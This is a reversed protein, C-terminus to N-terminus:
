RVSPVHRGLWPLLQWDGRAWRHLRQAWALYHEPYDEIFVIDTVLGARGHVGEFLDHSLLAEDPVRDALSRHFASVDYIGKGAYIGEGFLDQYVDSVARTYPDLAGGGSFVRAFFSTASLPSIEVRPQLVTYGALAQETGADIEVQNLPHALTEVLR